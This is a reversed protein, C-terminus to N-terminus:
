SGRKLRIATCGGLLCRFEELRKGLVQGRAACIVARTRPHTRGQWSRATGPEFECNALLTGEVNCAESGLQRVHHKPTLPRQCEFGRGIQRTCSWMRFPFFPRFGGFKRCAELPPM